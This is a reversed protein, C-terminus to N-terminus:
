RCICGFANVGVLMYQRSNELSSSSRYKSIRLIYVSPELVMAQTHATTLHPAVEREAVREISAETKEASKYACSSAVEIMFFCLKGLYTM